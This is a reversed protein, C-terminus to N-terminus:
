AARVAGRKLWEQVAMAAEVASAAAADAIM